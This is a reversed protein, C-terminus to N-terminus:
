RVRKISIGQFQHTGGVDLSPIASSNPLRTGPDALPNPTSQGYKYVEPTEVKFFGTRAAAEPAIKAYKDLAANHRDIADRALQEQADVIQRLAQETKSRDGGAITKGLQLDMNTTHGAQSVAKALEAQKQTSAADFSYSANLQSPDIGLLQAGIAQAQTRWDAGSGAIVGKDLAEKQRSIAALTGVAGQAKQYGGTINDGILKDLGENAKKDPHGPIITRTTADGGADGGAAGADKGPFLNSKNVAITGGQGDPVMVIDDKAHADKVGALAEAEAVKDTLQPGGLRAGRASAAAEDQLQQPSKQAMQQQVASLIAPNLVAAEVQDAPLGRGALYKRTAQLGQQQQIFRIQELQNKLSGAQSSDYHQMAAGVAPGIGRQTLLGISLSRLFNSGDPSNMGSIFREMFGPQAGAGGAQSTSAAAGVPSVAGQPAGFPRSQGSVPQGTLPDFAGALPTGGTPEAARDAPTAPLHQNPLPGPVAKSSAVQQAQPMGPNTGSVSGTATPSPPASLLDADSPRGPPLPTPRAGSPDASGAFPNAGGGMSARDYLLQDPSGPVPGLAARDQTSAMAREMRQADAESMATPISRGSAGGTVQPDVQGLLSTPAAPPASAPQGQGQLAAMVAAQQDPTLDAFAPLGGFSLGASM